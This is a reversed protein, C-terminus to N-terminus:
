KSTENIYQQIQMECTYRVNCKTLWAEHWEVVKEIAKEINWKPTWGLMAEAKSIDLKLYYAEHPQTNPELEWSMKSKMTRLINEVIWKVPKADSDRPGFNWADAFKNGENYLKQSLILYGSLPELVHQWPRVSDPSRIVLSENKSVASLIDPILRDSSWDGGGIVNGARASALGIGISNYFSNRYASTILESCGKSSSYPDYGGLQDNERYGWHWEKNDYCKDTTVNVFAKVSGCKRVAELTNVTGMVNVSYTEIPNSYSYRVLPQAAMHIVIDPQIKLVYESVIDCDRIDAIKSTIGEFVAAEMFLSPQTAPDLALGFVEANMSKLWVCLWSGKFGTHGTILVRKGKWFKDDVKNTSMVEMKEM